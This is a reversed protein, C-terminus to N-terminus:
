GKPQTARKAEAKAGIGYLQASVSPLGESQIYAAHKQQIRTIFPPILRGIRCPRLQDWEAIQADGFSILYPNGALMTHVVVQNPGEGSKKLDNFKTNSRPVAQRVARLLHLRIGKPSAGGSGGPKPRSVTQCIPSVNVWVTGEDDGALEFIDGPVPIVGSLKPELITTRGQAIKSLSDASYEGGFSTISDVDFAVPSIRNLINM